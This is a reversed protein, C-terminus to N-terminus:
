LEFMEGSQAGSGTASVAVSVAAVEAMVVPGVAATVSVAGM